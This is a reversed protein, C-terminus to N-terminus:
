RPYVYVNWENYWKEPQKCQCKVLLRAPFHARQRNHPDYRWNYPNYKWNGMQLAMKDEKYSWKYRNWPGM